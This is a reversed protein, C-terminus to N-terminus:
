HFPRIGFDWHSRNLRANSNHVAFIVVIKLKPYWVWTTGHGLWNLNQRYSPPLLTSSSSHLCWLLLPPSSSDNCSSFSAASASSSTSFFLVAPLHPYPLVEYPGDSIPCNVYPKMDPNTFILWYMSTLVFNHEKHIVYSTARSTAFLGYLSVCFLLLGLALKLIFLYSFSIRENMFKRAKRDLSALM